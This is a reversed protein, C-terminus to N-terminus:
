RPTFELNEESQSSTASLTEGADGPSPSTDTKLAELGKRVLQNVLEPNAQGRTIKMVQGVLFRTATDKGGLYDTVAKPNAAIADAVATQVASSDNIQTYGKAEVIQAPADGTTFAEELVTKAMTVSISGADVLGVLDALHKSTVKVGTIDINELNTLLSAVDRSDRDLNSVAKALGKNKLNILRRLDGLIWNSVSKAFKELAARSLQKQGLAAEFYDATAKSGTLLRADYEPIGFREVLRARRQRALEPLRARIEEVWAEDVALPPLDPEPFYRYDHAYEKSRQSVTVNREEIWGRTEQTVRGGEEVVRRQREAEYQLALYVSRFSNMNKVETRTSYETAGVPRISINADCRFSGDQMNATSVELYQLISHLAMLYSRAEEPSRLDPCSVVEMLPVGSRNVDVLSYSDGTASPFHQLKAVDEELHVREIAIHRLQDEVEIELHGEVALPLDYQSIQYGKMLDPYPYNKRDFKSGEPIRCGLALGTMITYEVAKSNIVPLTGPLGLCVPCVRSNVPATQYDARCACFMKSQTQLQVHVELGIVTEYEM